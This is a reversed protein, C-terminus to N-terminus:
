AWVKFGLDWIGFGLIRRQAKHKPSQSRLRLFGGVGYVLLVPIVPTLYRGHQYTVPLRVAYVGVTAAVWVPPLWWTVWQGRLNLVGRRAAQWMGWVLGPVLLAQAGVLPATGVRRLRVILPQALLAGYEAQKAYFTNPWLTGSLHLNLVLYPAVVLGTGAVLLAVGVAYPRGETTARGSRRSRLWVEVDMWLWAGAVLGVVLIGEPRTLILAGGLLGTLFPRGVPQAVARDWVALVLMAFLLTEMGSGAAWVLHWELACALGVLPPLSRREPFLRGSLRAALLATGALCLGGLTYTWLRFPLGLGYGVALLLTWLPATSGASPQDPVFAWQGHAVLNRAYTQHIWADDLPFGLHGGAWSWALYLALAALGVASTLWRRRM